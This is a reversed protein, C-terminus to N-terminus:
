EHQYCMSEAYEDVGKRRCNPTSGSGSSNSGTARDLQRLPHGNLRWRDTHVSM